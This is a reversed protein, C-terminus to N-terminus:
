LDLIDEEFILSATLLTQFYLPNNYKNVSNINFSLKKWYIKNCQM